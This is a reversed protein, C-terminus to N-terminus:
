DGIGMNKLFGVVKAAADVYRIGKSMAEDFLAKAKPQNDIGNLFDFGENTIRVLQESEWKAHGADVLLNVHLQRKLEDKSADLTEVVLIRGPDRNDESAMERLISIMLNTDRM